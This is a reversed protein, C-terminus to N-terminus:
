IYKINSKIMNFIIQPEVQRQINISICILEALLLYNMLVILADYM